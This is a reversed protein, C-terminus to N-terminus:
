SASRIFDAAVLRAVCVAALDAVAETPQEVADDREARERERDRAAVDGVDVAAGHEVEDAEPGM